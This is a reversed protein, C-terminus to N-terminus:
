YHRRLVSAPSFRLERDDAQGHYAITDAAQAVEDPAFLEAIIKTIVSLVGM